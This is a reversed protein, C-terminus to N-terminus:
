PVDSGQVEIAGPDRDPDVELLDPMESLIEGFEVDAVKWREGQPELVFTVERRYPHDLFEGVAEGALLLRGAPLKRSERVELKLSERAMRDWVQEKLAREHEDLRRDRAQRAEVKRRAAGTCVALAAEHRRKRWADLFTEAAREPTSTDVRVGGDPAVAQHASPEPGNRSLWVAAVGVCVMASALALVIPGSIRRQRRRRAGKAAM